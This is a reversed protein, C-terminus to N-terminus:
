RPALQGLQVPASITLWSNAVREARDRMETLHLCIVTDFL